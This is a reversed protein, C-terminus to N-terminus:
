LIYINTYGSDCDPQQVTKNGCLFVRTGRRTVGEETVLGGCHSVQDGDSYNQWKLFIM